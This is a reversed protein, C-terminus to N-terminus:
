DYENLVFITRATAVLMSARATPMVKARRGSTLMTAATENMPTVVNIMEAIPSLTPLMKPRLYLLLASIAPPMIRIRIPVFIRSSCRPTILKQNLIM